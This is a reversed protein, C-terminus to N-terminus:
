WLGPILRATARAYAGYEDGFQETLLQEEVRMRYALGPLLLAPIALLGGLSSFGLALGLAMLVFGAYGPHRVFRYPGERVLRHATQVQVQASYMRGLAWRTWARLALGLGIVVAGVAPMAEVRPLLAPLYLYEIPPWFFAAIFGPV